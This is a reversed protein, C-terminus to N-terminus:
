RIQIRIRILGQEGMNIMITGLSVRTLGPFDQSVPCVPGGHPSLLVGTSHYYAESMETM